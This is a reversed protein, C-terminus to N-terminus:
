RKGDTRIDIRTAGLRWGIGLNGNNPADDDSEFRLVIQRARGRIFSQQTSAQIASTSNVSLSDGPYNRTKVVINVSGNENDNQIFKFDPIIKQIFAFQEGDGIDFDSSEIFVNTMPSGDDDFGTEQQYLIGSSVARPYNEIGADLWATRSLSGYFWVNEAYNYIVYKDIESSSSSCYFWGVENKDAITFANIKFSQTLNIDSFVYNQVTCPVTQVSGNYIYFNNYSMWFVGQPATIAAKPGILGIGENILNVAFTLPPGVFQMSYLATDTWVLIEQRSKVAGIISSGSSLRLSGATNTTQPEFDLANEQDSFAILMPDIAGTRASGVIPDAGLVILHRDKESTIVQLGVTPVQNAGLTTSLNVARTSVGNNEVWRYIGGGRQNIILDEGFNDHTWLRLQNVSSLATASGFAEEGWGNLGWGTGPVYVDLGVNLQYTGVTSGGGNGSDGAAALVPDGSTDKAEITYSNSDVITAIQYEQNLVVDTINGGLSVAGSFTVFDNAVADHGTDAVTITADGNAVKAFTVDGASTTSRIPTVDNFSSGEEIYYKWTTGLGLYKTGALAIWSHLARGTGLFLNTNEKQWGGFKEPRGKRFRVLNCDFWGGENDYDTGERNIGPKFIAKQLTM